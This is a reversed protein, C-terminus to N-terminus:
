CLIWNYVPQTAVANIRFTDTDSMEDLGVYNNRTLAEDAHNFQKCSSCSREVRSRDTAFVISMEYTSPPAIAPSILHCVMMKIPYSQLGKVKTISLITDIIGPASLETSRLM